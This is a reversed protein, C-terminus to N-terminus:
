GNATGGTSSTHAKSPKELMANSIRVFAELDQTNLNRTMYAAAQEEIADIKSLMKQGAITPILLQSRRDSPKESKEIFGSQLLANLVRTVQAKDQNMKHAISQATSDPLRCIGKLVRIHNIPLSIQHEQIGARLQKKYTHMLQHLTDNLSTIPM